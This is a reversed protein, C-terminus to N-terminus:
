AEREALRSLLLDRLPRDAQLCGSLTLAHFLAAELSRTGEVISVEDRVRDSLMGFRCAADNLNVAVAGLERQFFPAPHTEVARLAPRVPLRLITASM